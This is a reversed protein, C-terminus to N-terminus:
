DEPIEEPEDPEAAEEAPETEEVAEECDDCFVDDDLAEDDPLPKTFCKKAELGLVAGGVITCGAIVSKVIGKLNLKM